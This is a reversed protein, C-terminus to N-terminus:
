AGAEAAIADHLDDLAVVDDALRAEVVARPM